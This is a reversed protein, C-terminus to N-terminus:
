VFHDVIESASFGKNWIVIEDIKGELNEGIFIGVRREKDLISSEVTNKESCEYKEGNIYVKSKLDNGEEETTLALHFWKHIPIEFGTAEFEKNGLIMNLSPKQPDKGFFVELDEEKGDGIKKLLIGEPSYKDLYLWTELTFDKNSDLTKEPINFYSDEEGQLVLIGSRNEFVPLFSTGYFAIAHNNPTKTEIHGDEGYVDTGLIILENHLLYQDQPIITQYFRPNETYAANVLYPMKENNAEVRRVDGKLIGHNNFEGKPDEIAKFEVLANCDPQDMKYYAVLGSWMPNWKNLTNNIFYGYSQMEANLADDWIRVEDIMGQFNGGIKFSANSDLATISSLKGESIKRGNILFEANGDKNIITIQSWREPKLDESKVEITNEGSSVIIEGPKGLKVTFDDGYSVMNGGPLWESPNMWFQISYSNLGEISPMYGCDVYGSNSFQLAKNSIQAKVNVCLTLILLVFLFLCRM